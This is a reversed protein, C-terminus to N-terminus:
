SLRLVGKGEMAKLAIDLLADVPLSAQNLVMDYLEPDNIEQHFTNRFFNERERDILRVRKEAEEESVQYAAAVQKVRWPFPAALRIHFGAPLDSAIRCGGRGIVIAHGKECLSRVARVVNQFIEDQTPREYFFSTMYKTIRAQSREALLETLARSTQLSQAIRRVIEHDFVMWRPDSAPGQNLRESLRLGIEMAMCGVQRSITVFPLSERGARKQKAEGKWQSVLAAVYQDRERESQMRIVGFGAPGKRRAVM